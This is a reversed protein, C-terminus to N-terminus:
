TWAHEQRLPYHSSSIPLVLPHNLTPPPSLSPYSRLLLLSASRDFFTSAKPLTKGSDDVDTGYLVGGGKKTSLPESKTETKNKITRECKKSLNRQSMESAKEKIRSINVRFNAFEEIQSGSGCLCTPRDIVELLAIFCHETVSYNRFSDSSPTYCECKSPKPSQGDDPIRSVVSCLTETVPDKESRLCLPVGVRSPGPAYQLTSQMCSSSIIDDPM